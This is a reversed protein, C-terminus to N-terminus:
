DSEKEIERRAYAAAGIVGSNGGLEAPAFRVARFSEQYAREGAVKFAPEFLMDGINSLGGGIVILEPNFINVLNALGVGVYYATRAILEEALSDGQQAARHIVEATVREADGGAYALIATGAGEKIRQRAERALATGSALTEWCGRNGCNCLPGDDDITMHGVEGAAGSAGSYIRGNVVIGGGIGTSLTIYIFNRAGRAAGFYLEGLAAANADNILFTKRGLREQIIDRLPIDRWGPLHPSTLLIGTEPNALGPAGVGVTAVGSVTDCAQELARHASQVISGIVAEHGEKAPTVAQDRSLMKGQRDIVATLIKSGGLDIGLALDDADERRELSRTLAEVISPEEPRTLTERSRM